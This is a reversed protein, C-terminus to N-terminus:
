SKLETRMLYCGNNLLYQFVGSIQEAPQNWFSQFVEALEEDSQPMRTMPLFFIIDANAPALSFFGQDTFEEFPGLPVLMTQVAQKGALCFCAMGEPWNPPLYAPHRRMYRVYNATRSLTPDDPLVPGDREFPNDSDITEHLPIGTAGHIIESSM